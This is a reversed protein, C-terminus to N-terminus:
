REGGEGYRRWYDGSRQDALRLARVFWYYLFILLFNNANPKVWEAIRGIEKGSREFRPKVMPVWHAAEEPTFGGVILAQTLARAANPAFEFTGCEHADPTHHHMIAAAAPYWWEREGGSVAKLLELCAEASEVAHPPRVSRKVRDFKKKLDRESEDRPDYDTHGLPADQPQREVTLGEELRFQQWEVAWKQWTRNLKGVDHLAFILRLLTEGLRWDFPKNTVQSLKNCLQQLPYRLEDQLALYTTGAQSFGALPKQYAHLLGWIHEHYREAIFPTAQYTRKPMLPLPYENPHEPAIFRLGREHSYSIAQPHAVFWRYSYVEQPKGILRWRYKGSESETELDDPTTTQGDCGMLLFPADTVQATQFWRVLQGRTVSFAEYQRPAETLRQDDNPAPHLYLPVSTQQRILEQLYGDDRAAMCKTIAHIRENIRNPLTTVFEADTPAHAAQILAQEEAYRMLKGAQFTPEQLADWTRQCIDAQGDELYPAFNLSEDPNLAPRFVHVLGQGGRRACRGARQILSAAPACETLLVDASIDLGVEVVQTAIVLVEDASQEFERIVFDEIQQRDDRYFRAHLLVCRVQPLIVRVTEYLMQAQEVINCICLTHKGRYRQVAVADLGDTHSYWRRAQTQLVGVDAFQSNPLPTHPEDAIVEAELVRAIAVLYPQSFTATMITFRCVGKLMKLMALVTLFMENQPYLHVEDFILYSGLIAGVNLNDLKRPIGYPLNLFSALLQDVTAFILKGSFFVDEPQEGTQITPQWAEEWQKDPAQFLKLATEYQSRTLSRMPTVYLIRPPYQYQRTHQDQYFGLLAPELAARTKGAGTPAQIILDTPTELNLFRQKVTRQYNYPTDM